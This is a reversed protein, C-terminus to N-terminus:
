YFSYFGFFDGCFMTEMSIFGVTVPLIAFPHPSFESMAFTRPFTFGCHQKVDVGLALFDQHM